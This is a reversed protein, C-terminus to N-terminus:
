KCEGYNDGSKIECAIPLDPAWTPPTSMVAEVYKMAAPVEDEPECIINEDHVQLQVAYRKSIAVMQETIVIRALAQIINEVVKGGYIYTWKLNKGDTYHEGMLKMKALKRVMRADSLYALSGDDLRTLCTYKLYMGNPLEIGNEATYPLLPHIQGSRGALMDQLVGDCKKWLSKIKHNATRYVGVVRTAEDITIDMSNGGNGVRLTERFKEGGMGYGLGLVSTKGVFRQMSTILDATTSYVRAAFERYVDRGDRFAEVVDTQGAIYALMRAEIQSSDAAIIKYGKLAVVAKRLPGGRTLNQLNMKDDGAMRGTHAGYYKLMIPLKGRRSIQLMRVTRTEEISSKVGMRATVALAVREDEHEMLAKFEKDTKSFAWTAEGTTPSIKKPPDIGCSDLYTALQPNSNLMQKVEDDTKDTIGLSSILNEKKWRVNKLHDVLVRQDLEFVPNTWMRMVRDIVMLESVPVERQLKKFLKYTLVSDQVGYKAYDKMEQKTFDARRKGLARQLYDGKKGLDFYTSLADLSLGVSAAYRPRAMSMTDLWLKPNIGYHWALISSDFPTNHCLIADQSYDESLLFDGFHDGSYWEPAEDNKQRSVGILEFRKDRVYGETTMRSLSYERSYYTEFDITWIDM